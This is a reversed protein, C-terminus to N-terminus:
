QSAALLRDRRARRDAESVRELLEPWTQIRRENVLSALAATTTLRGGPQDTRGMTPTRTLPALASRVIALRGAAPATEGLPAVGILTLNPSLSRRTPLQRPASAKSSM